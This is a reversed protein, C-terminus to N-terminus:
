FEDYPALISFQLITKSVGLKRLDGEVERPLIPEAYSSTRWLDNAEKFLRPITRMGYITAFAAKVLALAKAADSTVSEMALATRDVYAYARASFGSEGFAGSSAPSAVPQKPLAEEKGPVANAAGSANQSSHTGSGMGLVIENIIPIEDLLDEYRLMASPDNSALAKIMRKTGSLELAAAKHIMDVTIEESESSGIAMSQAAQFLKIYIGVIGQCEDYAADSLEATLATPQKTCQMRWTARTMLSWVMGFHLLVGIRHQVFLSPNKGVQNWSHAHLLRKFRIGPNYDM